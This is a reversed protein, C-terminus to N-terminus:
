NMMVRRDLILKNGNVLKGNYNIVSSSRQVYIKKLIELIGLTFNLTWLM